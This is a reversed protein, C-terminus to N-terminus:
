GKDPVCMKTYHSLSTQSFQDTMLNTNRQYRLDTSITESLEKTM